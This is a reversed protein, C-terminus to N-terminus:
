NFKVTFISDNRNRKQKQFSKMCMYQCSVLIFFIILKNKTKLVATINIFFFKITCEALGNCLIVLKENFKELCKSYM